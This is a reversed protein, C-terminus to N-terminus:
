VCNLSLVVNCKINAACIGSLLEPFLNSIPNDYFCVKELEKLGVLSYRDFSVIRNSRLDLRRLQTLVQFTNAEISSLQNNGLLLIQLNSLGQFTKAEISSLKNEYM